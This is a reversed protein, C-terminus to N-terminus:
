FKKRLELRFGFVDDTGRLHGYMADTRFIWSNSLPIQYRTGLGYQSDIANRGIPSNMVQVMAAEVILQQSFDQALINLGIAGGYTDNATSDLTPYGTMQDSEFLIGTNRLIGDAFGARAVSQPRDFGAFLNMYPVFTSPQSTILSNEHLLLVGDATNSGAATSQGANIIIRTSNSIWRGYRRTYALGINHYSRDRDTRDELFAYDAEIYGGLAEIFTLFAYLKAASNDGEFAPSDIGDIAWLFTMDMNSIDFLPSNRAPLTMALGLVADEMWIGNQVIMPMLGVAIPLDFPLTRGVAGGVIAGLDGEFFGVFPNPNLRNVFVGEDFLFRTSDGLGFPSVAMVFRETSTLSYSANLNLQWALPTTSTGRARQTGVSTRFDGFVILQNVIPNHFGLFTPTEPIQGLQYWPRGLELLPRQNANLTKGTYLWKEQEADYPEFPIPEPAFDHLFPMVEQVGVDSVPPSTFYREGLRPQEALRFQTTGLASAALPPSQQRDDNVSPQEFSLSPFPDRSAFRESSSFSESSIRPLDQIRPMNQPASPSFEGFGQPWPNHVTELLPEPLESSGSGTLRDVILDLTQLPAIEAEDDAMLTPPIPMPISAPNVIVNGMLYIILWRSDSKWPSGAVQQSLNDEFELISAPHVSHNATVSDQNAAFRSMGFRDVARRYLSDDALAAHTTLMMMTISFSMFLTLRQLSM